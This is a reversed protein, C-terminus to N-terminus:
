SYAGVLAPRKELNNRSDLPQKLCSIVNMVGGSLSKAIVDSTIVVLDNCYKMDSLNVMALMATSFLGTAISFWFIRQLIESYDAPQGIIKM